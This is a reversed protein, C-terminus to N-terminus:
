MVYGRYEPITLLFMTLSQKAKSLALERLRSDRPDAFIPSFTKFRLVVRNSTYGEAVGCESRSIRIYSPQSM